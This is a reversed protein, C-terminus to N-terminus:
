KEMYAAICLETSQGANEPSNAEDSKLTDRVDSLPRLRESSYESYKRPERARKTSSM